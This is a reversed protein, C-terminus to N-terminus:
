GEKKQWRKMEREVGLSRGNAKRQLQEAVERFSRALHRLAEISLDDVDAYLSDLSRDDLMDKATRLM